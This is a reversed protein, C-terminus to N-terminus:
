TTKQLSFIQERLAEFAFCQDADQGSFEILTDNLYEFDSIPSLHFDSNRNQNDNGYDRDHNAENPTPIAAQLLPRVPILAILWRYV